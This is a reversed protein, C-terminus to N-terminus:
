AAVEHDVQDIALFESHATCIVRANALQQAACRKLEARGVGDRLEGAAVAKEKQGRKVMLKRMETTVAIM